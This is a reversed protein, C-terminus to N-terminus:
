DAVQRALEAYPDYERGLRFEYIGPEFSITEHTDHGREHVLEGATELTAYLIRMGAPANTSEFAQKRDLTMVHHHGTESHGIIYKGLEPALPKVGAPLADIRRISIEGQAAVKEFTKM